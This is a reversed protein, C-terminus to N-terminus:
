KLKLEIMLRSQELYTIGAHKHKINGEPERSLLYVGDKTDKLLYRNGGGLFMSVIDQHAKNHTQLNSVMPTNYSSTMERYAYDLSCEKIQINKEAIRKHLIDSFIKKMTIFYNRIMYFNAGTVLIDLLLLIKSHMYLAMVLVVSFGLLLMVIFGLMGSGYQLAEKRAKKNM